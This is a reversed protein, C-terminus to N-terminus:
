RRRRRMPTNRRRRDGEAVRVGEGEAVCRRDGAAVCLPLFICLRRVQYRVEAGRRDGAAIRVRAGFPLPPESDPAYPYSYADGEAICLPLLM